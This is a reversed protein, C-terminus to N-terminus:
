KNLELEEGTLAFYLNQLQHVHKIVSFLIGNQNDGFSCHTHGNNKDIAFRYDKCIRWYNTSGDKVEEFGFRELWEEDLKIPRIMSADSGVSVLKIDKDYPDKVYNGIRLEKANM